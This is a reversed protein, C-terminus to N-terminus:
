AGISRGDVPQMGWISYEPVREALWRKFDSEARSCPDEAFAMLDDIVGGAPVLSTTRLILIKPHATRSVNENKHIPEEFLKEGPRLGTFEIKIDEDPKFGSLEIMQSALDVIKVPDGMDLVFVEGGRSQWASQLVLGVAEPISMFYRTIDPHTVRVPGGATIQNRFIPIVSGSSGLVNGFRVASFITTQNRSQIESIVLEALRKTAGMVNTPNVAKDTSVLIFNDAHAEAALGAVVLTGYCNNLIAEIPQSEMLPVHKHAAAHFVINPRYRSFIDEMRKQHTVSSALSTIGLQPFTARLEQEIQFLAPESREILILRDPTHSSIQRCLESGISGGAGTVMVVKGSIMTRIGDEDLRVPERGLLDEPDVHRLHNVSVDRHLLQTVSPLIDHEVGLRNLMEVTERIVGPPAGPMAIIARSVQLSEVLVPLDVRAGAIKRGHLMGGVKSLDDDIFCVVDLGLGQKSQIERFLASGASGAGIIAVKKRRSQTTRGADAFRERYVRMGTRIGALGAVSLLFDTLIVARPVVMTGNSAYWIGLAVVAASGMALIIRKADSLSFFTLLSRFQGFAFLMALKIPLLWILTARFFRWYDAPVEFDFRLLMSLWLALVGVGAYTVALLLNRLVTLHAHRM